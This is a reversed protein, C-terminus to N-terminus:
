NLAEAAMKANIEEALGIYPLVANNSIFDMVKYAVPQKAEDTGFSDRDHSYLLEITVRDQGELCSISLTATYTQPEKDSTKKLQKAM